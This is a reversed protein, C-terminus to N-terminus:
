NKSVLSFQLNFICILNSLVTEETNLHSTHDFVQRKLIGPSIKFM